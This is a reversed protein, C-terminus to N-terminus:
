RGPRPARLAPHHGEALAAGGRRRDGRGPRRAGGDRRRGRLHDRRYGGAGGAERDQRHDRARSGLRELEARLRHVDAARACSRSRWTTWARRRGSRWTRWTRPPSARWACPSGRSTSARTTPSGAARSSGAACPRSGGCGARAPAPPRRGAARPRRTPGAGGSRGALHAARRLHRARGRRAGAAGRRGGGPGGRGGAHAGRPDQPGAPGPHRRDGPGGPRRRRAGRRDARRAGGTHRALLQGSRRGHRGPDASGGSRARVLGTGIHRHDQHPAHANTGGHDCLSRGKSYEVGAPSDWVTTRADRLVEHKKLRQRSFASTHLYSADRLGPQLMRLRRCARVAGDESRPPPLTWGRFTRRHRAQSSQPWGMLLLGPLARGTVEACVVTPTPTASRLPWRIQDLWASCVM